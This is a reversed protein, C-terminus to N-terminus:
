DRCCAQCVSVCVCSFCAFLATGTLNSGLLFNLGKAGETKNKTYELQAPTRQEYKSFTGDAELPSLLTQVPVNPM